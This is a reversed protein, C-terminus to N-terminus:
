GTPRRHCSGVSLTRLVLNCLACCAAVYLADVDVGVSGAWDM